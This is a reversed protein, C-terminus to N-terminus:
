RAGAADGFSALDGWEDPEDVPHAEYAEAYAADIESRRHAALLAHLAREVVSADTAEPSLSRARSILDSDVTTSLRQKAM